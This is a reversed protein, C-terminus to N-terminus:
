LVQQLSHHKKGPSASSTSSAMINQLNAVFWPNHKALSNLQDYVKSSPAAELLAKKEQVADMPNNVFAMYINIAHVGPICFQVRIPHGDVLLCGQLAQMTAEAEQSTQYEVLGWNHIVGNKIAIQM